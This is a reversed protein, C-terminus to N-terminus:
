SLSLANTRFGLGEIPSKLKASAKAEYFIRCKYGGGVPLQYYILSIGFFIKVKPNFLYIM